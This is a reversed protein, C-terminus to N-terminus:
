APERVGGYFFLTEVQVPPPPSDEDWWSSDCGREVCSAVASGDTFWVVIWDERSFGWSTGAPLNVDTDEPQSGITKGQCEEIMEAFGCSLWWAHKRQAQEMKEAKM